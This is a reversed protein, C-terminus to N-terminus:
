AHFHSINWELDSISHGPGTCEARWIPQGVYKGTIASANCRMKLALLDCFETVLGLIQPLCHGFSLWWGVSTFIIREPQYCRRIVTLDVPWWRQVNEKNIYCYSVQLVLLKGYIIVLYLAKQVMQQKYIIGTMIRRTWCRLVTM